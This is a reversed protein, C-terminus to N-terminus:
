CELHESTELTPFNMGSFFSGCATRRRPCPDELDIKRAPDDMARHYGKLTFSTLVALRLQGQQSAAPPGSRLRRRGVIRRSPKERPTLMSASTM